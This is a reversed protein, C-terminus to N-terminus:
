TLESVCVTWVLDLQNFTTRMEKVNIKYDLVKEVMYEFILNPYFSNNDWNNFFINNSTLPSIESYYSKPIVFLLMMLKLLNEELDSITINLKKKSGVNKRYAQM